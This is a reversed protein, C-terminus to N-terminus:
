FETNYDAFWWGTAQTKGHCREHNFFARVGKQFDKFRGVIEPSAPVGLAELVFATTKEPDKDQKLEDVIGPISQEIFSELIMKYTGIPQKHAAGMISNENVPLHGYPSPGQNFAEINAAQERWDLQAQDEVDGAGRKEAASEEVLAAEALTLDQPVNPNTSM